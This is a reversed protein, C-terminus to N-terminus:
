LGSSGYTPLVIGKAPPTHTPPCTFSFVDGFKWPTVAMSSGAVEQAAMHCCRLAGWVGERGAGSGERCHGAGGM